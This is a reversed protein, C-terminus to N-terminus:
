GVFGFSGFGFGGQRELILSEGALGLVEYKGVFGVWGFKVSRGGIEM